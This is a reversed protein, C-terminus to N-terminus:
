LLFIQVSSQFVWAYGRQLRSGMVKQLCIPSARARREPLYVRKGMSRVTIRSSFPGSFAPVRRGTSSIRTEGGRKGALVLTWASRLATEVMKGWAHFLTMRNKRPEIVSAYVPFPQEPIICGAKYVGVSFTSHPLAWIPLNNVDRLITVLDHRIADLPVLIDDAQGPVSKLRPRKQKRPCGREPVNLQMVNHTTPVFFRSTRKLFKEITRSKVPCSYSLPLHVIGPRRPLHGWLLAFSMEWRSRAMIEVKGTYSWPSSPVHIFASAPDVRIRDMRGYLYSARSQTQKSPGNPLYEAYAIDAQDNGASGSMKACSLLRFIDLPYVPGTMAMDAGPSPSFTQSM